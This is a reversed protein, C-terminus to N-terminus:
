WTVTCHYVANLDTVNLTAATGLSTTSTGKTWKWTKPNTPTGNVHLRVALTATGATWNVATPYVTVVAEPGTAGTAGTAGTSGTPGTSGTAGTKGTPGTAGIPGTAGTAGVDGQPGTAGTAGTKGIPGTSGTPGTAGTAGTDGKPGQAGTAGAAGNKLNVTDGNVTISAGTATQEVSVDLSTLVDSLKKNSGIFVNGGGITISAPTSGSAPAFVIYADESGIHQGRTASFTVSEGFTSVLAGSGDYVRVGDSALLMKYGAAHQEDSASGIGSPLVWLGRNTVALHAMIFDNMAENVTLEYYSALDAAQPDVVPAYDTGDYTFYVKGEVVSTDSTHEFSGHESAWSLVGAVDQVVGLQDLAANSYLNAQKASAEARQSQQKAENAETTAASAQAQATSASSAAASASSAASTADNQASQAASAADAADSQASQAAQQATQASGQASTAATSAAQADQAASQADAQAQEAAAKADSADAVAADVAADIEEINGNILDIAANVEDVKSRMVNGSLEVKSVRGALGGLTSSLSAGANGLTVKLSRGTLEDAEIAVVRAEIRLATSSSVGFTRDVVHVVDGLELGAVDIGDVSAAVADVEYTVSPTCFSELNEQAWALLAEPTECSPNEVIIRPSELALNSEDIRYYLDTEDDTADYVLYNQGHNVTEITVKRGYGGDETAEGKGLPIIRSVYPGDAYTRKVGSVDRGFDFRRVATSSGLHAALNVKRATVPIFDSRSDDVDLEYDLEGGWNEVLVGLAQWGSMMYMSAGARTTNTVTGVTWRHTGSLAAALAERALVPTQVGPMKSVVTGELDSRLAWTCYVTHITTSGVEHESEVGYVVYERAASDDVCLIRDGKVINYSPSREVIVLELSHEGNLEDRRTASVLTPALLDGRGHERHNYLIIRTM